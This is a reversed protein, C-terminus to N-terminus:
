QSRLPLISGRDKQQRADESLRDSIDFGWKWLAIVFTILFVFVLNMYATFYFVKEQIPRQVKTESTILEGKPLGKAACAPKLLIHVYLITGFWAIATLLHLYGIILRVM